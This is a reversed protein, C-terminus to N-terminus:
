DRLLGQVLKKSLPNGKEDLIQIDYKSNQTFVTGSSTKATTGINKKAAASSNAQLTDGSEAKLEDDEDLSISQSDDNEYSQIDDTQNLDSACVAGVCLFVALAMCIIFVSKYKIIDGEIKFKV